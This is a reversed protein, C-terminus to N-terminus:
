ATQPSESQELTKVWVEQLFKVLVGFRSLDMPKEFYHDAKLLFAAKMDEERKSGTLICVPIRALRPDAKIKALVALGGTRPLNLDLLIAVPRPSRLYRGRRKLFAVAEVGDKALNVKM